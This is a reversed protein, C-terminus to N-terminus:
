PLLCLSSVRVPRPQVPRPQLVPPPPPRIAQPQLVPTLETLVPQQDAPLASTSMVAASLQEGQASPLHHPTVVEGIVLSTVPQQQGSSSILPERESRSSSIRYLTSLM